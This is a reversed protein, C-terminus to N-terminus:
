GIGLVGFHRGSSRTLAPVVGPDGEPERVGPLAETIGIPRRPEAGVKSHFCLQAPRNPSSLICHGFSGGVGDSGRDSGGREWWNRGGGVRLLSGPPVTGNGSDQAVNSIM